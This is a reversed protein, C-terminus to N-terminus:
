IITASSVNAIAIPMSLATPQSPEAAIDQLWERNFQDRHVESINHLVCCASIVTALPMDEIFTDNRKLLCRWRGKLRGFVNEVVIRARSLSYNFTKQQGTLGGHDFPKMLWPLLPYVPDGLIVMCQPFNSQFQRVVEDLANGEPIRIYIPLLRNVIAQCVKM